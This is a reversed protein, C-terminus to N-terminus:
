LSASANLKVRHDVIGKGALSPVGRWLRLCCASWALARRLACRILLGQLTVMSSSAEFLEAGPTLVVQQWASWIFIELSHQPTM